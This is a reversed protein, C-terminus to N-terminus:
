VQLMRRISTAARQLWGTREPEPAPPEVQLGACRRARLVIDGTVEGWSWTGALPAPLAYCNLAQGSAGVVRRALELVRGERGNDREDSILWGNIFFAEAGNSLAIHCCAGMVSACEERTIASDKNKEMM